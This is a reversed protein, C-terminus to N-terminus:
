PMEEGSPSLASLAPYSPVACWGLFEDGKRLSLKEYTLADEGNGTAEYWGTTPCGDDCGNGEGGDGKPCGDEYVLQYGNLYSAAFTYVKGSHARRVAAIFQRENGRPVNPIESARQWQEAVVGPSPRSLATSLNDIQTLVGYLDPLPKWEPSRDPFHKEMLSCLLRTAYALEDTVAERQIEVCDLIRDMQPECDIGSAYREIWHIAMSEDRWKTEVPPASLASLYARIASALGDFPFEGNYAQIAADLATEDLEIM